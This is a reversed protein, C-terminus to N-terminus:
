SVVPEDDHLTVWPAKDPTYVQIQPALAQTYDDIAGLPLVFHGPFHKGNVLFSASGCFSCFSKSSVDNANYSSIHELGEAIQFQSRPVVVWSSYDGGQLKRCNNYHCKLVATAPLTGKWRVSGCHCSGAFDM